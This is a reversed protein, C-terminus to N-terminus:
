ASAGVFCVVFLASRRRRCVGRYWVRLVVCSCLTYPFPDRCVGSVCGCGWWRVLLSMSHVSVMERGGGTM